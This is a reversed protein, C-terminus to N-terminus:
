PKPIPTVSIPTWPLPTLETPLPIRIEYEGAKDFLVLEVGKLSKAYCEEMAKLVPLTDSDCFTGSTLLVQTTHGAPLFASKPSSVSYTTLSGTARDAGMVVMDDPLITDAGTRNELDVTILFTVGYKYAPIFDPNPGTPPSNSVSSPNVTVRTAVLAKKNRQHPRSSVYIAIAFAIGLGIGGGVGWCLARLAITKWLRKRTDDIM